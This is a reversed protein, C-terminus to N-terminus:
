GASLWQELVAVSAAIADLHAIEYGHTNETAFALCATRAVLGASLANSADSGYSSVVAHGLEIGAAAAADELEAALADSLPGNSDAVVLVPDPGAEIAYEGAVPTM